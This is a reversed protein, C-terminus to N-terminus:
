FPDKAPGFPDAGQAKIGDWCETLKILAARSGSLTFVALRRLDNNYLAAARGAALEGIFKGTDEGPKVSVSIAIDSAKGRMNWRSYDVDIIFDVYRESLAWRRDFVFLTLTGDPYVTISLKQNARNGTEASCWLAGDMTDHTLEVGWAKHSFLARSQYRDAYVQQVSLLFVFVAVRFM